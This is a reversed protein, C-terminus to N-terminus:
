NIFFYVDNEITQYEGSLEFDRAISSYDINRSIIEPLDNLNYCSEIYDEAVEELTMNEYVIVDEYSKLADDFDYGVHDILYAVRKLDDESFGELEECKSNLSDINSYEDVDFLKTETEFEYDTIFYEEHEDDGCAAAGNTLIARIEDKLDDENMPLSIWEGILFGQNYAALDTIYVKLM